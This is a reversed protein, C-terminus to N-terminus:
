LTRSKVFERWAEVPIRLTRRESLNNRGSFDVAKLQGESILDFVHEVSIGAREAVEYPYLVTRGPFDLSKFEFEYQASADM